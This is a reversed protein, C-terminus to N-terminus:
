KAEEIGRVKDALEQTLEGLRDLNEGAWEEGTGVADIAAGLVELVMTPGMSALSGLQGLIDSM